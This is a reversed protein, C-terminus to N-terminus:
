QGSGLSVSICQRHFGHKCPNLEKYNADRPSVPELCISCEADEEEAPASQVSRGGLQGGVQRGRGFGVAGMAGAAGGGAGIDKRWLEEVGKTNDVVSLGSLKGQNRERLM